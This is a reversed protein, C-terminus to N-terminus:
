STTRRRMRVPIGLSSEEASQPGRGGKEGRPVHLSSYCTALLILCLTCTPDVTERDLDPLPNSPELYTARPSTSHQPTARHLIHTDCRRRGGVLLGLADGRGHRGTPGVRPLVLPQYRCCCCSASSSAYATSEEHHDPEPSPLLPPALHALVGSSISRADRHVNHPLLSHTSSNPAPSVSSANRTSQPSRRAFRM